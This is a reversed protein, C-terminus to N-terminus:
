SANLTLSNSAITLTSHDCPHSGLPGFCRGRDERIGMKALRTSLELSTHVVTPNTLGERSKNKKVRITGADSQRKLEVPASGDLRPDGFTLSAM